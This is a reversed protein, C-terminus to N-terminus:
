YFSDDDMKMRKEDLINTNTHICILIDQAYSDEKNVYHCDNTAVLPIDMESSLEILKQNIKDLNDVNAHDM